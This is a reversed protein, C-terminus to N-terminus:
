DESIMTPSNLESIWNGKFLPIKYAKLLPLSGWLDNLRVWKFLKLVPLSGPLLLLFGVFPPPPVKCLFFLNNRDESELSGRGDLEVFHRVDFACSSPHTTTCTLPKVKPKSKLHPSLTERHGMEKAKLCDLTDQRQSGLQSSSLVIEM